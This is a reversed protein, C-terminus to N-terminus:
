RRLRLWSPVTLIAAAGVLALVGVVWPWQATGATTQAAQLAVVTDVPKARSRASVTASIPLPATAGPVDAVAPPPAAVSVTSTVTATARPTPPAVVPNSVEDAPSSTSSPTPVTIPDSAEYSVTLPLAVKNSDIMSGSSYWFSGQGTQGQFDVFSQPFAGWDVGIRTQAGGAISVSVGRYAPTANFGGEKSLDVAGLNALTVETPDLASWPTSGDRSAGYGSLTGTLVGVGDTVTLKPDTVYFFTYGSYFVVTFTGKWQIVATDSAADVTGTGHDIVVQHGSFRGSTPSTIKAGATDTTLGAWTAPAYRGTAASLKEISVSGSVRSWEPATVLHNAGKNALKGASLFNSGFYAINNAENSLGWRLQADDITIAEADTTATATATGSPDATTTATATATATSTADPDPADTATASPSIVATAAAAFAVLLLATALLARLANRLEARVPSM